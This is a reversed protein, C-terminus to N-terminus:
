EIAQSSQKQQKRRKAARARPGVVREEGNLLRRINPRLAWFVVAAALLGAVFYAPTADVGAFYRYGFVIPIIAAMSMSAVSAMGIALMMGGMVLAAIPLMPWWVATAWGVNPGTGAGGGWGIFVSWNHGVIVMVAVLVITRQGNHRLAIECSQQAALM